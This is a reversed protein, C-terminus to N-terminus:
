ILPLSFTFTAGKGLGASAAWIKGGHAEIIGKAVVLGLGTGGKKGNEKGVQQFKSFLKPLDESAIGDGSDIVSVTVQGSELAVKIAIQGVSTHKIANSMLNNIVEEIRQRDFAIKPLHPDIELILQLHKQDTLPKFDAMKEELLESLNDEKKAVTFKGAEVKAIDLLENILTLMSATESKIIKLQSNVQSRFKELSV